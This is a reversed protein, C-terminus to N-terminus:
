YPAPASSFHHLDLKSIELANLVTIRQALGSGGEAVLWANGVRKATSSGPLQGTALNVM